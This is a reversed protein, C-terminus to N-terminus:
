AHDYPRAFVRTGQLPAAQAATIMRAWEAVHPQGRHAEYAADSEWHEVLRLYTPDAVDWSLEYAVCGDEARCAASFTTALGTVREVEEPRVAIGGHVVVSEM